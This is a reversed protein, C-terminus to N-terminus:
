ASLVEQNKREEAFYLGLHRAADRAHDQGPQWWGLNRLRTDTMFGKAEGPKQLKFKRNYKKAFYRLTGIIELPEYQRTLKITRQSITYAECVIVDIHLRYIGEALGEAMECFKFQDREQGIGQLELHGKTDEQGIVWGTTGGPDVALVRM